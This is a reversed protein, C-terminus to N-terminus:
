LSKPFDSDFIQLETLVSVLGPAPHGPSLEQWPCHHFKKEEGGRGSWSQFGGVRRDLPYRLINGRYLPAHVRLQCMVEM